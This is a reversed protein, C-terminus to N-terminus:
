FVVAALLGGATFTQVMPLLVAAVTVAACGAVQLTADTVLGPLVLLEQGPDALHQVDVHVALVEPPDIPM